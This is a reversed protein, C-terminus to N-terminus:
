FCERFCDEVTKLKKGGKFGRKKAEAWLARETKFQSKKGTEFEFVVYVFKRQPGGNDAVTVEQRVLLLDADFSLHTIDDMVRGEGGDAIRSTGDHRCLSGEELTDICHISYPYVLPFRWWDRFGPYTYFDAPVRGRREAPVMEKLREIHEQKRQKERTQEEAADEVQVMAEDVFEKAATVGRNVLSSVCVIAAVLGVAFLGMLISGHVHRSTAFCYIGLALGVLAAVAGLILGLILLVITM